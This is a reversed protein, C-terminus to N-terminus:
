RRPQSAHPGPAHRLASLAWSAAAGPRLMCSLTLASLGPWARRQLSYIRPSLLGSDKMLKQGLPPSVLVCVLM